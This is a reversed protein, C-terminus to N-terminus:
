KGLPAGLAPPPSMLSLPLYFHALAIAPGADRLAAPSYEPSVAAEKGDVVARYHAFVMPGFSQLILDNPQARAGLAPRLSTMPEDGRAVKAALELQPLYFTRRM